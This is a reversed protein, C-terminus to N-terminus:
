YEKFYMEVAEELVKSIARDVFDAYEYIIQQCVDVLTDKTVQGRYASEEGCFILEIGDEIFRQGDCEELQMDEVLVESDDLWMPFAVDPTEIDVDGSVNLDTVIDGSSLVYYTLGDLVESQERRDWDTDTLINKFFELSDGSKEIYDNFIRKIDSNIQNTVESFKADAYEILEDRHEDFISEAEQLTIHKIADLKDFDVPAAQIKRNADVTFHRKV